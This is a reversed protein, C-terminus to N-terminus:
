NTDARKKAKYAREIDDETLDFVDILYSILVSKVSETGPQVLMWFVFDKLYQCSEPDM